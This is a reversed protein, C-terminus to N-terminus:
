PLRIFRHRLSGKWQWWVGLCNRRPLSTLDNGQQASRCLKAMPFKFYRTIFRVKTNRAKLWTAEYRALEILQPGMDQSQLFEAFALSDQQHRKVGHPVTTAAYRAFLTPFRSGLVCCTLPLLHEVQRRRKHILSTAFYNVDAAAIVVVQATDDDTLGAARCTATPDTDFQQRLTADTLLRALFQQQHALPM